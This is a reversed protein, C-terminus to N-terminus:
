SPECSPNRCENEGRLKGDEGLYFKCCDMFQLKLLERGRQIRSKAGSVSINLKEAVEEQKLGNVNHLTLAIRYKEPLTELLPALCSFLEQEEKSNFEQKLSDIIESEKQLSRFHDIIENRSVQHLWSQVKNSSQIRDRQLHFKIFVNQLLDEATQHDKVRKLIFNFLSQSFAEWATATAIMHISSLPHM